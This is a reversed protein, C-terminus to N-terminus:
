LTRAVVCASISAQRAAYLARVAAQLTAGTTLVDDVLMVHKGALLKKGEASLAFAGVVNLQREAKSCLAQYETKRLRTLERCVPVGKARALVRALEESQNYGRWAYRTWHLPVPILYDVPKQVFALQQAMLEGLQCSIARQSYRKTGILKKLPDAYAGVAYVPVRRTSSMVLDVSAVPQIKLSCEDCLVSRKSLMVHCACCQPPAIADRVFSSIVDFSRLLM